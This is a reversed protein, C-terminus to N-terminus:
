ENEQQLNQVSSCLKELNKMLEELKQQSKKEQEDESLTMRQGLDEEELEFHLKSLKEQLDRVQNMEQLYADGGFAHLKGKKFDDLLELLGNEMQEVDGRDNLFSHEQGKVENETDQLGSVDKSHSSSPSGLSPNLNTRGLIEQASPMELNDKAAM